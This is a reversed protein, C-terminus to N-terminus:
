GHRRRFARRRQRANGRRHRRSGAELWGQVRTEGVVRPRTAEPPNIPTAYVHERVKSPDPEPSNRAFELADQVVKEIHAEIDALDDANAVGYDEVLRKRLLDMPDRKLWADVEAQTRYTGIVPDGEHHGM